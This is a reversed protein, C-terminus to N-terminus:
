IPRQITAMAALEPMYTNPLILVFPTDTRMKKEGGVSM